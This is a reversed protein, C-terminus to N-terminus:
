REKSYGYIGSLVIVAGVGNLVGPVEKFFFFALIGAMIPELLVNISLYTSSVYKLAWSYVSHGLITCFFALSFFLLFERVPYPGLPLGAARVGIFLLVASSSYLLTTYDLVGLSRRVVRGISMYIGVSLAGLMALFDGLLVGEGKGLDGWSLIGSGIVTLIVFFLQRRSSKERLFVRGIFFVMMPHTNVLLVSSAVSTYQLSSIWSAFHGALFIGSLLSLFVLKRRNEPPNDVTLTDAPTFDGATSDSAFDHGAAGRSGETRRGFLKGHLRKYVFYPLVLLAAFFMRYFAIILSPADSWRIFISSFSAFFVAAPLVPRSLNRYKEM